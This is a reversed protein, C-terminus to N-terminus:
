VIHLETMVVVTTERIHQSPLFFYVLRPPSYIKSNFPRKLWSNKPPIQNMHCFFEFSCHCCFVLLLFWCCFDLCVFFGLYWFFGPNELMKFPYKPM